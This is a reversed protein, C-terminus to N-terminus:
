QKRKSEYHKAGLWKKKCQYCNLDKQRACFNSSIHMCIDFYGILYDASCHKLENCLWEKNTM